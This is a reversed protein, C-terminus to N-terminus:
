KPLRQVPRPRHVDPEPAPAVRLDVALNGVVKLDPLGNTEALAGVQGDDGGAGLYTGTEVSGVAKCRLADVSTDDVHMGDIREVALLDDGRRVLRAGNEGDLLVVDGAPQARRDRFRERLRADADRETPVAHGVLVNDEARGGGEIAAVPEVSHADLRDCALEDIASMALWSFTRASSASRLRRAAATIGPPINPCMFTLR